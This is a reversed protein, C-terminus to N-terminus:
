WGWSGWEEARTGTWLRHHVIGDVHGSGVAKGLVWSGPVSRTSLYASNLGMFEYGIDPVLLRNVLTISLIELLPIHSGLFRYSVKLLVIM